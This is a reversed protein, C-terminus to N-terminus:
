IKVGIVCVDDVQEIEGKWNSFEESISQKQEAMTFSSISLVYERMKKIRFKKGNHGGFQDQFGDTLTYIQDGKQIDYEGGHFPIHDKEYKGVPM